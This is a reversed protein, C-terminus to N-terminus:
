KIFINPEAAKTELSLVKYLCVPAALAVAPEEPNQVKTLYGELGLGWELDIFAYGKATFRAIGHGTEYRATKRGANDYTKKLEQVAAKYKAPDMLKEMELEGLLMELDDSDAAYPVVALPGLADKVSGLASHNGKSTQYECLEVGGGSQINVLHWTSRTAGVQIIRELLVYDKGNETTKEWEQGKFKTCKVTGKEVYRDVRMSQAGRNFWVEAIETPFDPKVFNKADEFAEKAASWYRFHLTDIKEYGGFKWPYPNDQATTAAALLLGAMPAALLLFGVLKSRKTKMSLVEYTDEATRTFARGEALPDHVRDEDYRTAM